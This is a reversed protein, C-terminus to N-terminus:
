WLGRRALAHRAADGATTQTTEFAAAVRESVVGRTVGAPTAFYAYPAAADGGPATENWSIISAMSYRRLAAHGRGTEVIGGTEIVFSLPQECALAAFLGIMLEHTVTERLVGAWAPDGAALEDRRQEALDLLFSAFAEEVSVGPGTYPILRFRGFHASGLLGDLLEQENVGVAAFMRLSCPFASALSGGRGLRWIWSRFRRAASDLEALDITELCELEGPDAAVAAAGEAGLRERLHGDLLLRLYLDTLRDGDLPRAPAATM